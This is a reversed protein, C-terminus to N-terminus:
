IKVELRRRGFFILIVGIVVAAIAVVAITPIFEAMTNLGDIGFESTNRASSGIAYSYSMNFGCLALGGGVGGVSPSINILNVGGSSVTYNLDLSLLSENCYVAVSGTDVRGDLFTTITDNGPWTFSQNNPTTASADTQANQVTSLITAGLGLVIAGILIAIAFSGIDNIGAQGKKNLTEM